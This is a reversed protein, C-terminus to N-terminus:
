RSGPVARHVPVSRRLPGATSQPTPPTVTTQTLTSQTTKGGITTTHTTTTTRTTTGDSSTVSHWSSHTSTSRPPQTAPQGAPRTATSHTTLRTARPTPAAAAPVPRHVAVARDGTQRAHLESGLRDPPDASWSQVWAPVGAIPAYSLAALNATAHSLRPQDAQSGHSSARGCGEIGTAALATV